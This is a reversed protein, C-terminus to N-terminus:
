APQGGDKGEPLPPPSLSSHPPRHQTRRKRNGVRMGTVGLNVLVPGVPFFPVVVQCPPDTGATPSLKTQHALAQNMSAGSWPQTQSHQWYRCYTRQFLSLM